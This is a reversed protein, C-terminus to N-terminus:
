STFGFQKIFNIATVYKDLLPITVDSVTLSNYSPPYIVMWYDLNDPTINNDKSWTYPTLCQYIQNDWYIISNTNYIFTRKEDIPFPSISEQLGSPSGVTAVLQIIKIEGNQSASQIKTLESNKYMIWNNSIDVETIDGLYKNTTSDYFHFGIPYVGQSDFIKKLKDQFNSTTYERITKYSKSKLEDISKYSLFDIDFKTVLVDELVSYLNNNIIEDIYIYYDLFGDRGKKAILTIKNYIKDAEKKYRYM